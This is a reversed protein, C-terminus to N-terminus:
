ASEKLPELPLGHLGCGFASQQQAVHIRFRKSSRREADDVPNLIIHARRFFKRHERANCRAFHRRSQRDISGLAALRERRNEVIELLDEDGGQRVPIM